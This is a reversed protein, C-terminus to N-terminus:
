TETLGGMSVLTPSWSKEYKEIENRLNQVETSDVPSQETNVSADAFMKAPTAIAPPQQEVPAISMACQENVIKTEDLASLVDVKMKDLLQAVNRKFTEKSAADDNKAALQSSLREIEEKGHSLQIELQVRKAKETKSDLAAREAKIKQREKEKTESELDSGLKEAFIHIDSLATRCSELELNNSMSVPQSFFQCQEFAQVEMTEQLLFRLHESSQLLDNSANNIYADNLLSYLKGYREIRDENDKLKRSLIGIEKKDEVALTYLDDLIEKFSRYILRVKSKDAINKMMTFKEVKNEVLTVSQVPIEVTQTEVDIRKCNNKDEAVISKWESLNKECNAISYKLESNESILNRNEVTFVELKRVLDDNLQTKALLDSRIGDIEEQSQRNLENLIRGQEKFDKLEDNLSQNEDILKSNIQEVSSTRDNLHKLKDNLCRNHDSLKVNSEEIQQMKVSLNRVTETLTRNEEDSSCKAQELLSNKENLVTLQEKYLGNETAMQSSVNELCRLKEVSEHWQEKLVNYDNILSDNKLKLHELETSAAKFEQEKRQYDSSTQKVNAELQAKSSISDMESKHVISENQLRSNETILASHATSLSNLESITEAHLKLNRRVDKALQQRKERELQLLKNCHRFQEKYKVVEDELRGVREAWERAIRKLDSIAEVFDVNGGNAYGNESTIVDVM